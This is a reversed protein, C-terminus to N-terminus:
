PPSDEFGLGPATGHRRKRWRAAACIGRWTPAPLTAAEKDEEELADDGCFGAAGGGGDEGGGGGDEDEAGAAEDGSEDTKADSM